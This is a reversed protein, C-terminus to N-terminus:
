CLLTAACGGTCEGGPPVPLHGATYIMQGSRTTLVYNGKPSVPTPLEIGMEALKAEIHVSARPAIGQSRLLAPDSM